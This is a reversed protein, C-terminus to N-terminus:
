LRLCSRICHFHHYGTLGLLCKLLSYLIAHLNANHFYFSMVWSHNMVVAPFTWSFNVVVHICPQVWQFICVYVMFGNGCAIVYIFCGDEPVSVHLQRGAHNATIFCEEGVCLMYIWSCLVCRLLSTFGADAQSDLRRVTSGVHWTGM